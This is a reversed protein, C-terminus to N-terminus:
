SLLTNYLNMKVLKIDQVGFHTSSFCNVRGNVPIHPPLIHFILFNSLFPVATFQCVTLDLAEQM